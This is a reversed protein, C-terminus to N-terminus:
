DQGAAAQRVVPRASYDATIKDKLEDPSTATVAQLDDLRTASYEGDGSFVVYDDRWRWDLWRMLNKQRQDETLPAARREPRDTM